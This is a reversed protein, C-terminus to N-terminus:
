GSRYDLAEAQAPCTPSALKDAGYGDYRWQDTHAYWYSAGPVQRPPRSWDTAMAMTQWGTLPRVKEQGVYHAWGGGNRGM